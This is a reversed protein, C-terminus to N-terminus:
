ERYHRVADILVQVHGPDIDPYIGHGLNFVQGPTNGYVALIEQAAQVIMEPTGYLTAPDLNGQLAVREGVQQKAQALSTMWDIGLADAGSDAMANLYNGGNKTFLITPIKRGEYQLNLQSIIQKMPNLSFRAYDNPTLLGGWTDFLMVVDVGAAIQANLYAVTAQVLKALLQELLEPRKYRMARIKTFEKSASGEVMYCALTWPSGAFGILPVRGDLTKKILSVADMVYRLETNPDPIPLQAVDQEHIIPKTFVPGEGAMFELGLGMAHPITLIDSFLIAADLDFRDIPQMTVQTALEPNQVLDMFKPLQQRIARYEPLYRGAQRMIWIPTRDVAQRLLARILRDNKLPPV